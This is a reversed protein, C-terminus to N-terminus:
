FGTWLYLEYKNHLIDIIFYTRVIQYWPASYNNKVESNHFFLTTYFDHGTEFFYPAHLDYLRQFDLFVYYFIFM